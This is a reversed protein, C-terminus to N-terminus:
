EVLTIASEPCAQAGLRAQGELGAPVARGDSVNHGMDDVEYLDPGYALCQAHGSCAKPDVQIRLGSM